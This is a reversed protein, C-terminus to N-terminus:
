SWDPKKFQSQKGLMIGCHPCKALKLAPSVYIVKKCCCCQLIDRHLMGVQMQKCVGWTSYDRKSEPWEKPINKQTPSLRSIWKSARECAKGDIPGFYTNELEKIVEVDANSKGIDFKDLEIKEVEPSVDLLLHGEIYNSFRYAPIGMTHAHMAMTSGAHILVDARPLVKYAFTEKLIEVKDGFVKAYELYDEAPHPKIIIHWEPYDKILREIEALWRDKGDRCKKHAKIHIPDGTPAEPISYEPDRTAYDWCSAFLVTKKEGKVRKPLPFYHDFTFAGCWHANKGLANPWNNIVDVSEASWCLEMDAYYPWRGLIIDRHSQDAKEFDEKGFCPETRRVVIQIGMNEVAEIFDITHECRAEPIVVVDPQADLVFSRGYFVFNGVGVKHGMERLHYAIREDLLRDRWELQTLMAIKM